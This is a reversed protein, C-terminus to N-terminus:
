VMCGRGPPWRHWCVMLRKGGEGSRGGEVPRLAALRPTAEDGGVGTALRGNDRPPCAGAWRRAHASHPPELAQPARGCLQRQLRQLRNSPGEVPGLRWPLTVGAKGAADDEGLGKALRRLAQLARTAARARWAELRESQRQRV